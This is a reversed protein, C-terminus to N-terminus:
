QAAGSISNSVGDSITGFIMDINDGLSAIAAFGAIAVLSAIFTYEIATTGDDSECFALVQQRM